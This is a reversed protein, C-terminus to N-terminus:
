VSTATVERWRGGGESEFEDYLAPIRTEIGDQGLRGSLAELAVPEGHVLFVTRPRAPGSLVWRELDKADAHASLGEVELVRAKVPVDRGHMRIFKAGEQLKRGRTGAAQYGVLVVLNGEEPLLRKLHHLVRGGTMMGSSAIIIRPGALDNLMISQPVTRHFQIWNGQLDERRLELHETGANRRYIDTVDIAMPSDLHIPVRPLRGAETMRHLLMLVLQARAVAFAPILVTGGHELTERLPGALQDEMSEDLHLRDGYTSEMVLTDCAPLSEPDAHMPGEYRGLDGSFVITDTLGQDVNKVEVFTSGLIHGADHLTAEFGAADFAERLPRVEMLRIAREADKVTYLPLAPHHKSFAKRNAYEADEEQIKAADRLLIAALDRTAKTCYIPGQFGERVLRPLYGSHDVHAHTLVVADVTRPEFSPRRWNRLRLEKLGQFMGCDILLQRRGSELLFRSGTVTGAGGHFGLKM